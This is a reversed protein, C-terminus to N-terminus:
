NIAHLYSYCVVFRHMATFFDINGIVNVLWNIFSTIGGGIAVMAKIVPCLQECIKTLEEDPMDIQGATLVESFFSKYDDPTADDLVLKNVTTLLSLANSIFYDKLLSISEKSTNFVRYIIRSLTYQYNEVYKERTSLDIYKEKNPLSSTDVYILKLVMDMLEEKTLSSDYDNVIYDPGLPNLKKPTFTPIPTDYDMKAAYEEVKQKDMYDDIVHTKGLRVFNFLYNKPIVDDKNVINIIFPYNKNDQLSSKPAEYTNVYLDNDGEEMMFYPDNYIYKGLINAIGGGRSYGTVWIKPNDELNYKNMYEKLNDIVGNAPIAFGNVDGTAGINFNSIWEEKYDSGRISVLVMNRDNIKKHAFFYLTRDYNDKETSTLGSEIDSYGYKVLAQANEQPYSPILSVGLGARALSLNLKENPFGDFYKDSYTFPAYVVRGFDGLLMVEATAKEEEGANILYYNPNESSGSGCSSLLCPFLLLLSLKKTKM